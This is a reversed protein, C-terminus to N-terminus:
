LGLATKALSLQNRTQRYIEADSLAEPSYNNQEFKLVTGGGEGPEDDGPEGSSNTEDIAAAQNFSVAASIPIVPALGSLRKADKQIQDLDLVPTIVPSDDLNTSLASSIKSLGERMAMVADDALKEASDTVAGTNDTLGGALGIASFKGIEAFVKSPSKIHLKKKIAKIMATAIREMAQRIASQQSTLGDVLGKASDVGAQYLNKAATAGLAQSVTQLQADLKNLGDVATKGGALLQSAFAQDATGDQLLKQYTADDLGLKRLQELTDSYTYVASQQNQLAQMWNAVQTAPDIPNGDKDVMEIDPLTGFQDSTSKAFDDRIKIADTLKQNAEDLQATILTMKDAAGKLTVQVGDLDTKQKALATGLYNHAASL